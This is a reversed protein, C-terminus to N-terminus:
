GDLYDAERQKRNAEAYNSAAHGSYGISRNIAASRKLERVEERLKAIHNTRDLKGPEDYPLSRGDGPYYWGM